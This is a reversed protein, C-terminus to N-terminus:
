EEDNSEEMLSSSFSGINLKNKLLLTNEIKKTLLWEKLLILDNVRKTSQVFAFIEEETPALPFDFQKGVFKLIKDAESNILKALAEEEKSLSDIFAQFNEDVTPYNHNTLIDPFILM